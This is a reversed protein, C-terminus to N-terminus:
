RRFPKLEAGLDKGLDLTYLFEIRDGPLVPVAGVGRDPFVGNIRYMWGSGQGRDFEYVNALGAVYARSGSGTVDRHIGKEKTVRNLVDLVKDGDQIEVETASLPIESSSIKISITVTKKKKETTQKPKSSQSQKNNTTKQSQKTSKNSDSAQKKEPKEKSSSKNEPQKSAQENKPSSTRNDPESSVDKEKVETSEEKLKDKKKGTKDEKEKKNKNTDKAEDKVIVSGQKSGNEEVGTPKEEILGCASIFFLSFVLLITPFIRKLKQM